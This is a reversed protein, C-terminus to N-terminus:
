TLKAVKNEYQVTVIEKTDDTLVSLIVYNDKHSTTRLVRGIHIDGEKDIVNVKEDDTYKGKKIYEM